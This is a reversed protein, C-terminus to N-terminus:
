HILHLLMLAAELVDRFSIVGVPRGKEDVVPLHRVGAEKMLNIADVINENKKIVIPDETMVDALKMKVGADGHSLAYLLDRETVIGVLKGDEVVLVSGYGKELMAKAAEVVSEEPGMTLPPTTMIDEVRLPIKRRRFMKLVRM